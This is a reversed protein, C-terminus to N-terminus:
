SEGTPDPVSPIIAKRMLIMEAPMKLKHTDKFPATGTPLYGLAHYFAPLETRLNVVDIEVAGCGLRAFHEELGAVVRRAYGRGQRAPDVALLGFYGVSGRLEVYVAAALSGPEEDDIVLFGAGPRAIRALVDDPDTRDGHIFFDEVRYALNVVRAVEAADPPEALRPGRAM